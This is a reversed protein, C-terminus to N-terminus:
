VGLGRQDLRELLPPDTPRGRVGLDERCDLVALVRPPLLTRQERGLQSHEDRVPQHREKGLDHVDVEGGLELLREVLDLLAVGIPDLQDPGEVLLEVLVDALRLRAHRVVLDPLVRSLLAGVAALGDELLPTSEALEQGAGAVRLAFVGLVEAAALLRGVLHCVLGARRAALGHDDLVAAEPLEYGARTIGLALRGLRHGEPDRAGLGAAAYLDDLAPALPALGEVGAAFVGVALEHGPRARDGLWARPATRGEQCLPDGLAALSGAGADAALAAVLFLDGRRHRSGAAM